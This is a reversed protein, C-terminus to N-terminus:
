RFLNLRRLFNNNVEVQPKSNGQEYGEIFEGSIREDKLLIHHNFMALYQFDKAENLQNYYKKLKSLYDPKSVFDKYKDGDYYGDLLQYIAKGEYVQQLSKSEYGLENVFAM